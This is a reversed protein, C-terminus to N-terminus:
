FDKLESLSVKKAAKDVPHDLLHVVLGIKATRHANHLSDSVLKRRRRFNEVVAVTEVMCAKAAYLAALRDFDDFLVARHFLHQAGIAIPGLDFLRHLKIGKAKDHRIRSFGSDFVALIGIRERELHRLKELGTTKM